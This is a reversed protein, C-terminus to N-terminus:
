TRTKIATVAKEILELTAPQYCPEKPLHEDAIKELIGWKGVVSGAKCDHGYGCTYCQNYPQVTVHAIVKIENVRMFKDLMPKVYDESGEKCSTVTVGYKGKLSFVERHRFCFTREFCAHSLANMYGYYNPSGFIIVDAKKMKEGIANWDDNIRCINDSACLACGICGNIRKGALSIVEFPEGCGDAIM